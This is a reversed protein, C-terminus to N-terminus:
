GGRGFMRLLLATGFGWVANILAYVPFRSAFDLVPQGKIPPVVFIAVLPLAVAGLMTWWIWYGAGRRGRLVLSIAIAWVGGWFAKSIVTPVNWPPVPDLSWTATKAPMMAQADLLAVTSQHFVLVGLFGAAFAILLNTLTSSSRGADNELHM